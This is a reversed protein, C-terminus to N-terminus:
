WAEAAAEAAAATTAAAAAADASPSPAIGATAVAGSSASPATTFSSSGPASSSLSAACSMAMRGLATSSSSPSSPTDLSTSLWNLVAGRLFHGSHPVKLGVACCAQLCHVCRKLVLDFGRSLSTSLDMSLSMSWGSRAAMAAAAVAPGDAPAPEEAAPPSSAPLADLMGESTALMAPPLPWSELSGMGGPRIGPSAPSAPHSM